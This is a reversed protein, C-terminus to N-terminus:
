NKKFNKERTLSQALSNRKIRYEKGIRVCPLVDAQIWRRITQTSVKLYEAVQKVTLLEPLKADQM